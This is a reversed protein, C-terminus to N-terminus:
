GVGNINEWAEAEEPTVYFLTWGNNLNEYTIEDGAETDTRGVYIDGVFNPLSSAYQRILLWNPVLKISTLIDFGDNLSMYWAQARTNWDLTITVSIDGLLIDQTFRSSTTQFTPIIQM